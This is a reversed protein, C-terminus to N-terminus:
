LASRVSVAPMFIAGNTRGSTVTPNDPAVGTLGNITMIPTRNNGQPASNSWGLRVGINPYHWFSPNSGALDLQQPVLAFWFGGHPLVVPTTWTVVREGSVGNINAFADPAPIATGPGRHSGADAKWFMVRALANIGLNVQNVWFSIGDIPQDEDLPVFGLVARGQSDGITSAITAATGIDSHSPILEWWNNVPATPRYAKNTPTLTPLPGTKVGGLGNTLLMQNDIALGSSLHTYIDLPFPPITAALAFMMVIQAGISELSTQLDEEAVPIPPGSPDPNDLEFAEVTVKPAEIKDTSTVGSAGNTILFHGGPLSGTNLNSGFVNLPFSPVQSVFGFLLMLSFSIEEITEQVTKAEVTGVLPPTFEEVDEPSPIQFEAVDVQEAPHRHTKPNRDDDLRPDDGVVVRKDAIFVPWEYHYEVVSQTDFDFVPRPGVVTWWPSEQVVEHDINLNKVSLWLQHDLVILDGQSYVTDPDWPSIHSGDGPPPAGILDSYNGSFAIDAFLPVDELDNWSGSFAITALQNLMEEIKAIVWEENFDPPLPTSSNAGDKFIHLRWESEKISEKLADVLYGMTPPDFLLRVRAGVYSKVMNIRKDDGIYDEWTTVADEIMYGEAPGVGLQNLTSFASNIHTIIEVDFPTYEEELGLLKKTTNLISESM